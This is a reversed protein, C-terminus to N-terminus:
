CANGVCPTLATVVAEALLCGELMALAILWKM